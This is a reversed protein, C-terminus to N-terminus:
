SQSEKADRLAVLTRVLKTHPAALTRVFKTIPAKLVFLIQTIAEDYTPLSAISEIESADIRKGSLSLVQVDIKKNEKAFDKVVKAAARPENLSFALFMQGVLDDNICKFDTDALAIKALRNPVVRLYVDAERAKARLNTMDISDVGTYRAAVASVSKNAVESVETVVQKKEALTLAM